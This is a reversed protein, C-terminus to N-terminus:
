EAMTLTHYIAKTFKALQADLAISIGKSIISAGSPTPRGPMWYGSSSFAHPPFNQQRTWTTLGEMNSWIERSAARM